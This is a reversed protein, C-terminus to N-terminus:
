YIPCFSLLCLGDIVVDEAALDSPSTSDKECVLFGHNDHKMDWSYFGYDTLGLEQAITKAMSSESEERRKRSGYSFSRVQQNFSSKAMKEVFEDPRDWINNTNNLEVGSIGVVGKLCNFAPNDIFYAAKPMNFCDKSCLEHLVFDTVNDRGHLQVIKRPLRRLNDVIQAHRYMIEPKM